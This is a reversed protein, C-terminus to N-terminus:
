KGIFVKRNGIIYLGPTLANIEIETANHKICRGKIDYVDETTPYTDVNIEDIGAPDFEVINAFKSWVPSSKYLSSTGNPVFLTATSFTPEWFHGDEVTFKPPNFCYSKINKLSVCEFLFSGYITEVDKPIEIDKIGYCLFFCLGGIKNINNPLKVSELRKLEYFSTEPLCNEPQLKSLIIYYSLIDSPKLETEVFYTKSIDISQLSQFNDNIYWMDYINLPGEITLNSINKAQDANIYNSLDGALNKKISITEKEIYNASLKIEPKTCEFFGCVEDKTFVTTRVRNMWEGNFYGDIDFTLIKNNNLSKPVIRFDVRIGRLSNYSKSNVRDSERCEYNLYHDSSLYLILDDNIDISITTFVPEYGQVPCFSPAELTGPVIRWINENEYKTVVQLRDTPKLNQPSLKSTAGIVAVPPVLVRGYLVSENESSWILEKVNNDADVIAYGYRGSFESPLILQSVNIDFPVNQKIENTSINLGRADIKDFGHSLYPAEVYARSYERPGRDPIINIIMGQDNHFRLSSNIDLSYYGNSNGNWGFNCHYYNGDPDYGDVVWAHGIHNDASGTYIIPHQEKLQSIIINSWEEEDFYMRSIFQCNMDYKFYERLSHSANSISAGSADPTFSMDVSVAADFMLKAVSNIEKDTSFSSTLPMSGYEYLSNEFNVELTQSKTNGTKLSQCWWDYHHEGRGNIPWENYRMVIAMATAVCGTVCYEDDVTPCMSNFPYLQGWEATQLYIKETQTKAIGQTLTNSFTENESISKIQNSYLDLIYKVQPPMNTLDFSGKDSYGLIKKARDDGSIIVFGKNDSANFIYYPANEESPTSNISRARIARPARSQEVSSNNFFDQAAAQAEDPTIQRANAIFALVLLSLSLFYRM